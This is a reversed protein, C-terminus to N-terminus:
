MWEQSAHAFFQLIQVMALTDNDALHMQLTNQDPFISRFVYGLRACTLDSSWRVMLGLNFPQSWLRSPSIAAYMRKRQTRDLLANHELLARCIIDIDATAWWSLLVHTVPDFGARRLSDGVASLSMGHTHEANYHREFTGRTNYM